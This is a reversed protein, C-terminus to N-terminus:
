AISTIAPILREMAMARSGKLLVLDGKRAELSIKGELAEYNDTYYVHRDLGLKRLESWASEMEQGYLYVEDMKSNVLKRAIQRHADESSSGLEKMSGLVALKRGDWSLSGMYDLISSTSDVSANYWDEIITVSGDIIRSRGPVACFGELGDKIALADADFSQAVSIAALADMLSHRGVAHLHIDLGRYNISWGHIGLSEISRIGETGDLGFPITEINRIRSIYRTWASNEAIYAAEIGPHFLKSKEKAIVQMSGMKGVHSLGINTIVAVEPRWIDLMRDMEGVHDVGMEFVGFETDGDIELVSIPLGIESNFNGPTKATKGITALISAVMEKTTTKGCSGTIGVRRVDPHAEVHRAAMRQLAALPDDVVILAHHEHEIRAKIRHVHKASILAASAGSAFAQTVFDHGDGNEGALAVFLSGKTAKRSDITISSVPEFPGTGIVSGDSLHAIRKCQMTIM